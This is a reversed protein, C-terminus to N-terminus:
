GPTVSGVGTNHTTVSPSGSYVISGTGSLTADLTSTAQVNVDGTGELRAIVDRAALGGLELTGSGSQTATLREVSGSVVLTGTGSLDATFEPGTVGVVTVTGMGSLSLADLSPVSVTVSMSAETDFSGPDDIVLRDARVTTSVNDVLNDDGTVAVAQAPGVRVTVTNAGALEVAAFPALERQDTVEVGSGRVTDGDDNAAQNVLAALAAVAVVAAIAGMGFGRWLTRRDHVPGTVVAMLHGGLGIEGLARVGERIAVACAIARRPGDITALTGDGTSKVHRGRFRDLQRLVFRDYADLLEKWRRDGLEAARATSGVIDTFMVTTLVREPATIPWDGTLFSQMQAVLDASRSGM